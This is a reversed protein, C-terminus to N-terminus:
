KIQHAEQDSDTANLRQGICKGFGHPIILLCASGVNSSKQFSRYSTSLSLPYRMQGLFQGPQALTEATQLCVWNAPYVISRGSGCMTPIMAISVVAIHMDCRVLAIHNLAIGDLSYLFSTRRAGRPHQRAACIHQSAVTVYM